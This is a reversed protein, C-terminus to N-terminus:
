TQKQTQKKCFQRYERLLADKYTEEMNQTIYNGFGKALTFLKLKVEEEDTIKSVYVSKFIEELGVIGSESDGVRIIKAIPKVCCSGPM